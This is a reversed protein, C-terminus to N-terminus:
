ARLSSFRSLVACLHWCRIWLGAKSSRVGLKLGVKSSWSRLLMVAFGIRNYMGHRANERPSEAGSTGVQPDGFGDVGDEPARYGGERRVRM